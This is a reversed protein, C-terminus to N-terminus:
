KVELRGAAEATLRRKEANLYTAISQANEDIFRMVELARKHWCDCADAYAKGAVIVEGVAYDRGFANPNKELSEVEGDDWCGSNYADYYEKGCACQRRCGSGNTRFADVFNSWGPVDPTVDANSM